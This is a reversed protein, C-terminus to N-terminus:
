KYRNKYYKYNKLVKGLYDNTEKFPIKNLTKGDKSYREDKLWASVNGQGANYACVALKKDGFYDVLYALYFSGLKLNYKAEKLKEEEFVEGMQGSLWEATSPLLQMLGVAGKSSVVGERFSSEVNVVSAILASEVKYYASFEKIVQNYKMPYNFSYFAGVCFSLVVACISLSLIVFFSKM